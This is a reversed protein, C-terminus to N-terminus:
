IKHRANFAIAIRQGVGDYPPVFHALYSPFLVMSGPEPPVFYHNVHGALPWIQSNVRPDIFGLWGSFDGSANKMIQEPTQVCFVGSITSRPHIHPANFGGVNLMTLWGWLDFEFSQEQYNQRTQGGYYSPFYESICGFIAEKLACIAPDTSSLFKEDSQFGGRTSNGANRTPILTNNKIFYILGNLIEKPLMKRYIPNPFINEIM